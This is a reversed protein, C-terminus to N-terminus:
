LIQDSSLMNCNLDLKFLPFAQRYTPIFFNCCTYSEGAELPCTLLLKITWVKWYNSDPYDFSPYRTSLLRYLVHPTCSIYRSIETPFGIPFIGSSLGLWLHSSLRLIFCLSSLTLNHILQDPEPYLCKIQAHYRIKPKWLLRLMEQSALSSRAEWSTNQEM